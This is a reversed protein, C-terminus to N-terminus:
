EGEKQIFKWFKKGISETETDQIELLVSGCTCCLCQKLGYEKEKVIMKSSCHPCYMILSEEKQEPRLVENKSLRFYNERLREVDSHAFAKEYGADEYEQLVEAQDYEIYKRRKQLVGDEYLEVVREFNGARGFCRDVYQKKSM